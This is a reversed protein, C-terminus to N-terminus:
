SRWKFARRLGLKEPRGQKFVALNTKNKSENRGGGAWNLAIDADQRNLTIHVSDALTEPTVSAFLDVYNNSHFHRIDTPGAPFPRNIEM